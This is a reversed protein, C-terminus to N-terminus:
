FVQGSVWSSGSTFHSFLSPSPLPSLVFLLTHSSNSLVSCPTCTYSSSHTPALFVFSPFFARTSLLLSTSLFSVLTHSSLSILRISPSFLPSLSPFCLQLFCIPRPFTLLTSASPAAPGLKEDSCRHCGRKGDVLFLAAAALECFLFFFLLFFLEATDHKAADSPRGRPSRALKQRPSDYAAQSRGMKNPQARRRAHKYNSTCYKHAPSQKSCPLAEYNNLFYYFQLLSLLSKCIAPLPM